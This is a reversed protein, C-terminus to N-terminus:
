KLKKRPPKWLRPRKNYKWGKNELLNREPRLFGTNSRLNGKNTVSADRIPKGERMTKRLKSANQKWNAKPSGMDPLDLLKEGKKLAGPKNLDDMKGIVTRGKGAVDDAKNLLKKGKAIGQTAEDINRTVAKTVDDGFKTAFKEALKSFGEAIGSLAKKGLRAGNKAAPRTMASSVAPIALGVLDGTAGVYDGEALSQSLMQCDTYFDPSTTLATFYVALGTIIELGLPDTYNIPNNRCYVYRNTNHPDLSKISETIVRDFFSYINTKYCIRPDDPGGTLPDKQLFRGTETDYFRARYYMLNLEDEVRRATYTYENESLGTENTVKGWADYDYTKVTNGNANTIVRTSGLADSHYYEPNEGDTAKILSDIGLGQTYEKTIAGSGDLDALINIGDYLFKTTTGDVTKSYRRKDGDYAYTIQAGAPTVAGIMRNEYDYSFITDENNKTIKTTNGNTDYEYNYMDDGSALYTISLSKAVNNGSTDYAAVTITNQGSTVSITQHFNDGEIVASIGNVIVRDVKIDDRVTGTVTIEGTGQGFVHRTTLENDDNYVYVENSAGNSKTLRNGAADYTYTEILSDPYTVQTLRYLNDYEYSTLAVPSVHKEIMSIKNGVNDYTYEIDFINVANFLSTLTKLWNNDFYSYGTQIENPYVTKIVRGADDYEYQTIEGDADTIRFLRNLTDYEYFINGGSYGLFDRNGNEDYSYSKTGSPSQESILRNLEDYEYNYVGTGDVMRTRNSNEDYVYTVTTSDIYTKQELRNLKDYTYTITDGNADEQIIRNGVGDYEYTTLKWMPTINSILRNLADYEYTTINDETRQDNMSIKNGNEDYSYEIAGSNGNEPDAVEIIQNLKDYEYFTVKGNADMVASLNGNEDYYNTIANNEADTNTKLRNLSNYTYTTEHLLPNTEM